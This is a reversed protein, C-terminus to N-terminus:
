SSSIQNQTKLFIMMLQFLDVLTYFLSGTSTTVLTITETDTHNFLVSWIYICTQSSLHIHCLHYHSLHFVVVQVGLDGCVFGLVSFTGHKGVKRNTGNNGTGIQGSV